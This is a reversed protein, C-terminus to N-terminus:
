YTAGPIDGGPVVEGNEMYRKMRLKAMHQRSRENMRKRNQQRYQKLYEKRAKEKLSFYEQMDNM